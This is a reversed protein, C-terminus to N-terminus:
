GAPWHAEARAKDLTRLLYAVAEPLSPVLDITHRLVCVLMNAFSIKRFRSHERFVGTQGLSRFGRRM